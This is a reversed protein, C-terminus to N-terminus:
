YSRSRRIEVAHDYHDNTLTLGLIANAATHELLSKLYNFKDVGSLNPNKHMAFEFSEWFSYWEVPNGFFKGLELKPLKAHIQSSGTAISTSGM